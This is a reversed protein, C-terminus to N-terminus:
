ESEGESEEEDLGLKKLVENYLNPNAKELKDLQINL